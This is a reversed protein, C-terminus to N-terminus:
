SMHEAIISLLDARKVPKSIVKKAGAEMMEQGKTSSFATIALVVAKPDHTIIEKTAEIGDMGPMVVDMLVLDPHRDMFAEVARRGDSAEIVESIHMPVGESSDGIDCDALMMRLVERVFEDDDAVLIIANM